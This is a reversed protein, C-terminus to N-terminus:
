IKEVTLGDIILDFSKTINQSLNFPYNRGIFTNVTGRWMCLLIIALDDVNVATSIEGSKQLMTLTEKIQQLPFDRIDKVQQGIRQCIAESWEMQFVVFFLFKQFAPDQEISQAHLRLVERLSAISNPPSIKSELEKQKASFKQKLLAALLDAKNRFHWYVAGKTLNIRKAIEDFTTRSFGKEYLIDLASDLVAQRTQEAEEKTRRAM